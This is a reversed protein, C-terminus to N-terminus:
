RGGRPSSSPGGGLHSVSGTGLGREQDTITRDIERPEGVDAAAEADDLEYEARGSSTLSGAVPDIEHGRLRQVAEQSVVDEGLGARQICPSLSSRASITAEISRM